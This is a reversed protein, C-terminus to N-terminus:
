RMCPSASNGSAHSLGRRREARFRAIAAHLIEEPKDANHILRIEPMLQM